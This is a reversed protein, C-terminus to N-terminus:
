DHGQTNEPQLTKKNKYDNEVKRKVNAKPYTFTYNVSRFYQACRNMLLPHLRAAFM